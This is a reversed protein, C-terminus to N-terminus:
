GELSAGRYEHVAGEVPRRPQSCEPDRRVVYTPFKGLRKAWSIQKVFECTFGQAQELSAFTAFAASAYVQGAPTKPELRSAGSVHTGSCSALGTIPNIGLHVPGVHLAIRLPLPRSFQRPEAAFIPFLESLALAMNGAAQVSNLAFFLGDGWTERVLIAEDYPRALEAVRGLFQEVFRPVEAESLRSFGEVDAFLLTALITEAPEERTEGALEARGFQCYGAIARPPAAGDARSHRKM